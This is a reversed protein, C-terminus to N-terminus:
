VAPSINAHRKDNYFKLARNFIEVFGLFKLKYNIALYLLAFLASSVILHLYINELYFTLGFVIATVIGAVAGYKFIISLQQRLPVSIEKEVFVANAILALLFAAGFVILFFYVGGFFFSLYTPFLICKKIIELKLFAKSNGRASIINVMLASVPFVFGTVSMIRFYYGVTLWKETFLIIVIDFCTLFLVGILLFSLFCIIHLCTVYFKQTKDIDDSMKAILPFAVSTTTSASFSRILNDLAQARNYYGLTQIPFLKGIIFVDLRTFVTDLIGSLLLKSGYQWLKKISSLNFSFSPIWKAFYAFGILSLTAVALQQIILAWVKYGYFAFSVAIIGSLFATVTNILSITKLELNKQLLGSPVLALANLAFLLSAFTIYNKLGEIEYFNEILGGGASFLLILLIAISLNIFFITSLQEQSTEQAQIIASRFGLDVFIASLSIVSLVIGYAGFEAPSMLRTLIVSVIFLVFYNAVRGTFDWIALKVISL